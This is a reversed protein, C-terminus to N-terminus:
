SAVPTPTASEDSGLPDQNKGAENDSAQSDGDDAKEDSARRAADDQSTSSQQSEAQKRYYEEMAAKHRKMDEDALSQYYKRREPVLLKWRQGVMQALNKFSIKGHTKRHPRRKKASPVLPRLLAQCTTKSLSIKPKERDEDPTIDPPANSPKSADAESSKSVTDQRHDGDTKARKHGREEDAIEQLIREREESFFLNYASLPRRPMDAPKKRQSKRRKRARTPAPLILLSSKSEEGGPKMLQSRRSAEELLRQQTHLVDSLMSQHPEIRDSADGRFSISSPTTETPLLRMGGLNSPAMRQQAGTSNLNGTSGLMSAFHTPHGTNFLISSPNRLGTSQSYPQEQQQGPLVGGQGAAPNTQFGGPTQDPFSNNLLSNQAAAAISQSYM